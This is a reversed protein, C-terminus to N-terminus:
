KNFWTQLCLTYSFTNHGESVSAEALPIFVERFRRSNYHVQCGASYLGIMRNNSVASARHMNIGFMGHEIPLNTNIRSNRDNDRYVLCPKSQVLARHDYRGKHYGLVWLAKHHGEVLIATGQNLIPRELLLDSPDTTIEFYEINWQGRSNQYFVACSDNYEKTNESPSRFGWINLNYNFKNRSLFIPFHRENAVKTIAELTPKFM